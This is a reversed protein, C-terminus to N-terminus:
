CLWGSSQEFEGTHSVFPILYIHLYYLTHMHLLSCTHVYYFAHTPLLICALVRSLLCLFIYIRLYTIFVHTHLSYFTHRNMAILCMVHLTFLIHMCSLHTHAYSSETVEVGGYHNEKICATCYRKAEPPVNGTM